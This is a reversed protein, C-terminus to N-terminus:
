TSISLGCIMRHPKARDIFWTRETIRAVVVLSQEALNSFYSSYVYIDCFNCKMSPERYRQYYTYDNIFSEFM